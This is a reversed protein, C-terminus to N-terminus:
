SSNALSFRKSLGAQPKPAKSGSFASRIKRRRELVDRKILLCGYARWSIKIGSEYFVVDLSM